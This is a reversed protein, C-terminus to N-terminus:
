KSQMVKISKVIMSSEEPNEPHDKHLGHNLIIVQQADEKNFWKLIKPDTCQFVLMGDYYILIKDEEWLCAYQVFRETCNAVPINWAGYMKKNNEESSGYHINPQIRRFPKLLTGFFSPGEYNPGAQSYAELIDIEPPWSNAGTLWFAPWYSQGKPLKIWAEFWGYQWSEKTCILGVGVPITFEEPLKDERRWEPLESKIYKKPKNRLDLELGFPTTRSMEGSTDYYQTLNGSHFDGWVQSLRWAELDLSSGSFDDFFVSEYGAPPNVIGPADGKRIHRDAIISSKLNSFSDRFKHKFFHSLNFDPM